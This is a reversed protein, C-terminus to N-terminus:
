RPRGRVTGSATATGLVVRQRIWTKPIRTINGFQETTWEDEPTWSGAILVTRGTDSLLYGVHRVLHQGRLYEEVDDINMWGSRSSADEWELYVVRLPRRIRM